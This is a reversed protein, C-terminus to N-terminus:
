ASAEKAKRRQTASTDRAAFEITLVRLEELTRAQCVLMEFLRLPISLQCIGWYRADMQNFLVTDEGNKRVIM